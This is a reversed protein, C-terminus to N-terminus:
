YSGYNRVGKKKKKFMKVILLLGIIVALVILVIKLIDSTTTDKEFTFDPNFSQTNRVHIDVPYTNQTGNPSVITFEYLYLGPSTNNETYTDNHVKIGSGSTVQLTSIREIVKVIERPSLVNDKTTYIQYKNNTLSAAYAKDSITQKVHIEITRTTFTNVIGITIQYIGPMDGKGTYGDSIIELMEDEATYLELIDKVSLNKTSDKYIIDPGDIDNSYAYIKNTTTITIVSLVTIVMLMIKKIM